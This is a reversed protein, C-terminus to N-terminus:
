VIQIHLKPVLIGNRYLVPLGSIGKGYAYIKFPRASQRAELLYASCVLGYVLLLPLLSLSLM